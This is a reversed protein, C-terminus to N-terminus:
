INFSNLCLSYTRKICSVKIDIIEYTLLISMIISVALLTSDDVEDEDEEGEPVAEATEAAELDALQQSLQAISVVNEAHEQRLLTLSKANTAYQKNLLDLCEQRLEPSLLDQPTPDVSTVQPKKIVHEVFWADDWFDSGASSDVSSNVSTPQEEVYVSDKDQLVLSQSKVSDEDVVALLSTGLPEVDAELAASAEDVFDTLVALLDVALAEHLDVALSEQPEQPEQPERPEQPEQPDQPEQPEQPDVALSEQPEIALCEQTSLLVSAREPAVLHLAELVCARCPSRAVLEVSFVQNSEIDELLDVSQVCAVDTACEVVPVLEAVSESEFGSDPASTMNTDVVDVEGEMDSSSVSLSDIGANIASSMTAAAPPSTAAVTDM